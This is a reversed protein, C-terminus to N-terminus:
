GDDGDDDGDEGDDGDGEYPEEEPLDAATGPPRTGDLLLKVRVDEDRDYAHIGGLVVHQVVTTVSLPDGTLLVVSGDAGPKIAGFRGDLGLIHAPTSTAAAIAAARPIDNAVCQAAQFWLSRQADRTSGLAFPM